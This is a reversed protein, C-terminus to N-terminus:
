QQRTRCCKVAAQNIICRCRIEVHMPTIDEDVVNIVHVKYSVMVQEQLITYDQIMTDDHKSIEQATLIISDKSVIDMRQISQAQATLEKMGYTRM